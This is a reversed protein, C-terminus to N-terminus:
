ETKLVEVPNAKGANLAGATITFVIVVASLVIGITYFWWNLNTQYAFQSLWRTALSFM